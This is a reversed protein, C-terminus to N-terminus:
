KRHIFCLQKSLFRYRAAHLSRSMKLSTSTPLGRNAHAIRTIDKNCLLAENIQCGRLTSLRSGKVENAPGAVSFWESNFRRRVKRYM